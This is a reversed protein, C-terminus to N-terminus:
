AVRYQKAQLHLLSQRLFFDAIQQVGSRELIYERSRKAFTFNDYSISNNSIEALM